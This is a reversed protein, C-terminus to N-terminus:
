SLQTRWHWQRGRKVLMAALEWPLGAKRLIPRWSWKYFNSPDVPNGSSTKFLWGEKPNGNNAAHKRLAELARTPVKITATSADTKPAYTQNLWLTRSIAITGENLDLDEFRLSLAEGVRLACLAGLVYVCEFRDGKVTNLLHNVEEATLVDRERRQRKRPPKVDDLPNIKILKQRVADRMAQKLLVHIQGV